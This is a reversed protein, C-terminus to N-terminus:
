QRVSLILTNKVPIDRLDKIIIEIIYTGSLKPTYKVSTKISDKTLTVYKSSGPKKIKITTILGSQSSSIPIINDGKIEINVSEGLTINTHSLRSKNILKSPSPNVIVTLKHLLPGNVDSYFYYNYTGINLTVNICSRALIPNSPVLMSTSSSVSSLMSLQYYLYIRDNTGETYEGKIGLVDGQFANITSINTLTGLKTDNLQITTNTYDHQVYTEFNNLFQQLFRYFLMNTKKFKNTKTYYYNIGQAFLEHPIDVTSQNFFAILKPDNHIQDYLNMFEDNLLNNHARCYDFIAHGTEHLILGEPDKYLGALQINAKYGDFTTTGITIDKLYRQNKIVFYTNHNQLYNRIAFPLRTYSQKAKETFQILTDNRTEIYFRESYIRPTTYLINGHSKAVIKFAGIRNVRFQVKYTTGGSIQKLNSQCTAIDDVTSIIQFDIDMDQKAKITLTVIDDIHTSTKNCKATTITEQLTNDQTAAFTTLSVVNSSTTCLIIIIFFSLLCCFYRYYQRLISQQKM